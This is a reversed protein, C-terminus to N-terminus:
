GQTLDCLQEVADSVLYVAIETGVSELTLPDSTIDSVLKLIQGM